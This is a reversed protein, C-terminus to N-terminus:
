PQEEELEEAGKVAQKETLFFLGGVLSWLVLLCSFVPPVLAARDDAGMARFFELLVVDRTGLGGPMIPVASITNAVQVSLFYHRISLSDIRFALGICYIALTATTHICASIGLAKALQPLQNRYLDLSRVVRAIISVLKPPFRKGWNRIADKIALPLWLDRGLVMAVGGGGVVAILVVFGVTRQVFNNAGRLEDWVFPLCVLAVLFLGLLGLIRDVLISLVAEPARPGAHQRVYVMKLVDGGVGGLGVLNFFVGIMTLRFADWQRLHVEQLALLSCWRYSSLATGLVTLAVAGLLWGYNCNLFEHTLNAGAQSLVWNIAWSAMALSLLTRLIAFFRQRTV